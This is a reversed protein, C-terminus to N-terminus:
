SIMVMSDIHRHIGREGVLKQIDSGIKHFRTINKMAGSGMEFTYKM